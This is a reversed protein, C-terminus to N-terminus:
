RVRLLLSPALKIRIMLTAPQNRTPRVRQVPLMQQHCFETQPRPTTTPVPTSSETTYRRPTQCEGKSAGTLNEIAKQHGQWTEMIKNMATALSPLSPQQTSTTEQFSIMQTHPHVPRRTKKPGAFPREKPM